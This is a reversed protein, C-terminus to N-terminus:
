IIKWEIGRKRVLGYRKKLSEWKYERNDKGEKLEADGLKIEWMDVVYDKVKAYLEMPDAYGIIDPAILVDYTGDDEGYVRDVKFYEKACVTLFEGLKEAKVEARLAIYGSM